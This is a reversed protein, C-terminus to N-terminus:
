GRPRAFSNHFLLFSEPACIHLAGNKLHGRGTDIQRFNLLNKIFAPSDTLVIRTSEESAKQITTAADM